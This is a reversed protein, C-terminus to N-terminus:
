IGGCRSVRVVLYFCVKGIVRIDLRFVVFRLFRCFFGRVLVCYGISFGLFISFVLM